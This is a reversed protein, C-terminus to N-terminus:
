RVLESLTVFRIGRQERVADIVAGLNAATTANFHNLVISGSSTNPAVLGPSLPYKWDQPDVSWLITRYGEAAAAVVVDRYNGGGPPRFYPKLTEGPLISRLAEEPQRIQYTFTGERLATPADRHDYTHNGFENGEAVARRVFAPDRALLKGVVFLTAHVDRSKLVDLIESRQSWGDDITLAALPKNTDARYMVNLLTDGSWDPRGSAPAPPPPPPPFDRDSALAPLHVKSSADRSLGPLAFPDDGGQHQRYQLNEPLIPGREPHPYGGDGFALSVLDLTSAGGASIVQATGAGIAAGLLRRRSTRHKMLRALLDGVDAM